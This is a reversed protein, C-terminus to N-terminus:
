QNSVVNPMKRLAPPGVTPAIAQALQRILDNGNEEGMRDWLRLNKGLLELAKLKSHFKIRSVKVQTAGTDDDRIEQVEIQEIARFALEPWETMPKLQGTATDLVDFMSFLALSAVEELVRADTIEAKAAAKATRKDLYAKVDPRALLRGSNTQSVKVSSKPFAARYCRSANKEPDALFRNLFDFQGETLCLGDIEVRKKREM